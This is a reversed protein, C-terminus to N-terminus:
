KGGGQDHCYYDDIMWQFKKTPITIAGQYAGTYDYVGYTVVRVRAFLQLAYKYKPGVCRTDKVKLNINYGSGILQNILANPNVSYLFTGCVGASCTDSEAVFTWSSWAEDEKILRFGTFVYWTSFHPMEFSALTRDANLTGQVKEWTGTAEDFTGFWIDAAGETVSPINIPITVTPRADDPFTLSPSFNYGSLVVREGIILMEENKAPPQIFSVTINQDAALAGEPFEIMTQVPLDSEAYLVTGSPTVINASGRQNLFFNHQTVTSLNEDEAKEVEIVASEALYGDKSATVVYLGETTGDFSFVGNNANFEKSSGDPLILKIDFGQMASGTESNFVSVKLQNFVQPDPEPWESPGVNKCQNLAFIMAVALLPLVLFRTNIKIKM